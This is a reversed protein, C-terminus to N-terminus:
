KHLWEFESYFFAVTLWLQVAPYNIIPYNNIYNNNSIKMHGSTSMLKPHYDPASQQMLQSILRM